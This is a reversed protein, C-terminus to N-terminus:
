NDKTKRDARRLLALLVIVVNAVIIAAFGIGLLVTLFGATSFGCAWNALLGVGYFSMILVYIILVAIISKKMNKTFPHKESTYVFPIAFSAINLMIAIIEGARGFFHILVNNGLTLLICLVLIHAVARMGEIFNKRM